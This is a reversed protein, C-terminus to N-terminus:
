QEKKKLLEDVKRTELNRGIAKLVEDIVIVPFSAGIVIQWQHWTLPAVDFIESLMPIYLIAFHLLFSSAMALLLWPNVWPRVVLLSENESLANLANMMEITVLVSLSLTSATQKYEWSGEDSFISCDYNDLTGSALEFTGTATNCADWHTLMEFTVGKELYHYAFVGVTAFGVYIGVVIYRILLWRDILQENKGRPPKKMIDPDSPNFGLATAPPGDTVLNVWLLHVPALGEPMRLLATLFISAVEGVNSSIMYRIFAKMNNYIGRGEEIAAVITSFNDDALVMDSAEKAVETGAIGMAIGIDAMKLAPADNVGDGTMAVVEDFKQLLKVVQQKFKPESRSFILVENSGFKTALFEKIISEQETDSLKQFDAGLFSRSHDDAVDLGLERCVAEATYQNDGTILVVKLGAERCAKLASFVQPRPPDRMGVTGVYVLGAKQEVEVFRDPDQLIEPISEDGSSESDHKYQSLGVKSLDNSFAFGLCRWAQKAMREVDALLQGRLEDTLSVVKGDEQLVRDCRSLLGEPAGKVLLENQKQSKSRTRRSGSDPTRSRTIVSMSKRDRTFELTALKEYEEQIRRNAPLVIGEEESAPVLKEVLCLLAAETPLGVHEYAEGAANETLVIDAGNCLSAIKCLQQSLLSTSFGPDSSEEIGGESPNFSTGTVNVAAIDATKSARKVYSIQVVSMQNTTLTGTKDSCVVNTCGLTEVAPLQRVIANRKAMKRTGLALCMTIVTPLGEPIAAVALAVAVQFYYVAKRFDFSVEFTNFDVQLFFHVNVLWVLVCVLGILQQLLDSFDNLQKKLPTKEEAREAAAEVLQSNIKGLETSTGTAIVLAHCHGSAVSTGSFLINKKRQIEIEGSQLDLAKEQKSVPVSEGTLTMEEVRFMTTKLKILRCDAPVQEGVTLEVIDGPVIEKAPLFPNWEGDRLVIALNPQMQKLAELSKESSSEQWIGVAANLFLILLIVLPEVFAEITFPKQADLTEQVSIFTSVAAAVLLIKVLPDEFQELFLEFLSKPDEHPLENPGFQALRSEAEASTLGTTLNSKQAALCEKVSSLWPYHQIGNEKSDKSAQKSSMPQIM